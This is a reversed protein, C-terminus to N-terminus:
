KVRSVLICINKNFNAKYADRAGGLAQLKEQRM